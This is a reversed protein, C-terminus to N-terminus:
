NGNDKDSPNIDRRMAEHRFRIGQMALSICAAGGVIMLLAQWTPLKENSTQYKYVEYFLLAGLVLLTVSFRSLWKRM